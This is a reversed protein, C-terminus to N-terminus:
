EEFNEFGRVESLNAYWENKSSVFQAIPTSISPATNLKIAEKANATKDSSSTQCSAFFLVILFLLSNKM